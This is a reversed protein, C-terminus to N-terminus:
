AGPPYVELWRNQAVRIARLKSDLSFLTWDKTAEAAVVLSADAMDLPMDGYQNMLSQMTSRDEDNLQHVRILKKALLNWLENQARLGASSYLLHMAETLCPWTTILSIAPLSRMATVCRQHDADDRDIIAVLPGTDCLM